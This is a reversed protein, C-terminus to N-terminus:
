IFGRLGSHVWSGRPAGLYVGAFRFSGLSGMVPALSGVLVPIFGVFGKRAQTFVRLDSHVRRGRLRGLSGM